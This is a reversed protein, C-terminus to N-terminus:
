SDPLLMKSAEKLKQAKWCVYDTKLAENLAMELKGLTARPLGAAEGVLCEQLFIMGFFDNFGTIFVAKM